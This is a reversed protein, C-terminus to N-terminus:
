FNCFILTGGNFRQDEGLVLVHEQFDVGGPAAVALLEVGLVVLDPLLYKTQNFRDNLKSFTMSVKGNM